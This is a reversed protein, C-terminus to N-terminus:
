AKWIAPPKFPKVLSSGGGGVQAPYADSGIVAITRIKTKDLPLAPVARQFGMRHDPRQNRNRSLQRAQAFAHLAPASPVSSSHALWVDILLIVLVLKSLLRM